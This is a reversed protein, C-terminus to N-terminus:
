RRRHQPLPPQPDGSVGGGVPGPLRGVPGAGRHPPLRPNGAPGGRRPEPGPHGDAGDDRPLGYVPPQGPKGAAPFLDEGRKLAGRGRDSGAALGLGASVWLLAARGASEAILGPLSELVLIVMAFFFLLLAIGMSSGAMERLARKWSGVKASSNLARLKEFCPAFGEPTEGSVEEKLKYLNKEKEEAQAAEQRRKERSREEGAARQARRIKRLEARDLDPTPERELEEVQNLVAQLQEEREEPSVPPPPEPPAGSAPMRLTPGGPDEGSSAPRTVKKLGAGGELKGERFGTGSSAFRRTHGAAVAAERRSRRGERSRGLRVVPTFPKEPATGAPAATEPWGPPIERADLPRTEAEAVPTYSLTPPPPPPEDEPEAEPLDPFPEPLPEEEPFGDAAEPEAEIEEETDSNDPEEAEPPFGAPEPEAGAEEEEAWALPDEWRPEPPEPRPLPSEGLMERVLELTETVSPTHGDAPPDDEPPLPAPDEAPFSIGRLEQLIEDVTESM